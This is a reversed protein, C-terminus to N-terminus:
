AFEGNSYRAALDQWVKLMGGEIFMEDSVDLRQPFASTDSLYCARSNNVLSLGPKDPATSGFCYYISLNEGEISEEWKFLAGGLRPENYYQTLREAFWPLAALPFEVQDFVVQEPGGSSPRWNGIGLIVLLNDDLLFRHTEQEQAVWLSQLEIAGEPTSHPDPLKGYPQKM